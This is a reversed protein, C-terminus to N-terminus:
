PFDVRLNTFSTCKELHINDLKRESCVLSLFFGFIRQRSRAMLILSLVDSQHHFLRKQFFYRLQCIAASKNILMQGFLVMQSSM